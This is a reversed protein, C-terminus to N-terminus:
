QPMGRSQIDLYAYHMMEMDKTLQAFSVYKNYLQYFSLFGRKTYLSYTGNDYVIKYFLM